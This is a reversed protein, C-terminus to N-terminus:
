NNQVFQQELIEAICCTLKKATPLHLFENPGHANSQPGLVGTIVFQAEPFKKGLIGMFPISGGEGWHLTPKGFYNQSAQNVAENLWSTMEPANWGDAVDKQTFIVQANYPPDTELRSKIAKAAATADCTPPIRMSLMVAIEPLLVNGADKLAPVGEIGTVTLAPRWTRNLVLEVKDETIPKANAVFPFESWVKEGLADAVVKAESIRNQPISVKLDQVLINGTNEDEIRGLLQRLIIFPSPIVGGASGSHVGEKLIEIKLVGNMLGRLSTTCWFQEYNGCGSDLCIILEPKGIQDQLKEIYFPLDASGSEECAEILIVCRSHSQGQQQLAKIATLAAFVAYGDDAGGRGYLRDNKEVPQWPGLDKDWGVMEPQKDLHGYLLITNKGNGPVEIMLLPTTNPARHITLVANKLNQAKCWNALLVVAREMHGHKQWDPDFAPSKNPIQIYEKLTPLIAENWNKEVFNILNTQNM